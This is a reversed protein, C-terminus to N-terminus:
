KRSPQLLLTAAVLAVIMVGAGALALVFIMRSSLGLETELGWYIFLAAVAAAGFAIYSHRGLQFM